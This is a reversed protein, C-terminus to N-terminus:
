NTWKKEQFDCLCTEFCDRNSTLSIYCHELVVNNKSQLPSLCELSDGKHLISCWRTNSQRHLAKGQEVNPSSCKDTAHGGVNGSRVGQSKQCHSNKLDFTYRSWGTDSAAIFSAM